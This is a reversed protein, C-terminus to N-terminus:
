SRPGDSVYVYLTGADITGIRLGRDLKFNRFSEEVNNAGSAKSAWITNSSSGLTSSETLILDDGAAGAGVWRIMHCVFPYDISDDAATMIVVRENTTVAM